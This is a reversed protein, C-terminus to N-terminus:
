GTQSISLHALFNNLEEKTLDNLSLQDNNIEILEKIIGIKRSDGIAVKHCKLKKIDHEISDKETLLLINRVNSGTIIRADIKAYKVVHHENRITTM